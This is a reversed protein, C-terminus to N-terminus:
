RKAFAHTWAALQVPQSPMVENRPNRVCMSFWPLKTSFPGCLADHTALRALEGQSGCLKM